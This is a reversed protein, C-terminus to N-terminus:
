IIIETIKNRRNYHEDLLSVNYSRTRGGVLQPEGNSFGEHIHGCIHVNIERSTVAKLLLKDGVHTGGYVERDHVKYMPGHTILVDCYNKPINDIYRQRREDDAMYNWDNIPVTWPMGYFRYGDVTVETDILLSVNPIDPPLHYPWDHNGWTMIIRSTDIKAAWERFTTDLWHEQQLKAIHKGRRFSFDPCVDGAIVVVHSRLETPPPLTGHIDSIAKIQM